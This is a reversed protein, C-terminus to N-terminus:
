KLASTLRPGIYECIMETLAEDSFDLYVDSGKIGVKMGATFDHGPFIEPTEKFSNILTKKLRDVIDNLNKQPFVLNLAAEKGSTKIYQDSLKSIIDGMLKPTMADTVLDKVCNHMRKQLSLNLEIIIDRAAQQITAKAREENKSASENSKKIIQEAEIKARKIINDAEQKAANVINAKESEAKKIGEENIRDLLGQLEEAM